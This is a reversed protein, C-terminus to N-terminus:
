HTGLFIYKYTNPFKDIKEKWNPYSDWRESLNPRTFKNYQYHKGFFSNSFYLELILRHNNKIKKGRHLCRTNVM